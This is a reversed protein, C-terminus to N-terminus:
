ISLHTQACVDFLRNLALRIAVLLQFYATRLHSEIAHLDSILSSFFRFFPKQQFAAGQEEHMNALVLVFISLIKVLYHVKAQDDNVGRADGQHKIMCVVLESMADLALYAYDMDGSAVCKMYHNVSAEFCVRFFFSSSDAESRLVGQKTLHNIFPIFSKEPSHSKQYINVWQQFALFLKERLQEVEPKVPHQSASVGGAAPPFGGQRVNRLENM